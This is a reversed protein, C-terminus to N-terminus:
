ADAHACPLFCVRKTIWHWEPQRWGITDIYEAISEVSEKIKRKGSPAHVSCGHTHQQNSATCAASSNITDFFTAPIRLARRARRLQNLLKCEVVGAATVRVGNGLVANLSRAYM